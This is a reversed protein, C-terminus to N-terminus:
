SNFIEHSLGRWHKCQLGGALPQMCAQEFADKNSTLSVKFVIRAKLVQLHRSQLRLAHLWGSAVYPMHDQLPPFLHAREDCKAPSSNPQLHAGKEAHMFAISGWSM